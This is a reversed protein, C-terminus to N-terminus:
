QIVNRKMIRQLEIVMERSMRDVRKEAKLEYRETELESWGKYGM